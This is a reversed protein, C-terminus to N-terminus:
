NLIIKDCGSIAQNLLCIKADKTIGIEEFTFITALYYSVGSYIFKKYDKININLMDMLIYLPEEPYVIVTRNDKTGMKVTLKIKNPKCKILEINDGNKLKYEFIFKGPYIYKDNFKLRYDYDKNLKNYIDDIFSFKDVCTTEILNENIINIKITDEGVFKIEFNLNPVFGEMLQDDDIVKNSNIIKMKDIPISLNKFIVEKLNFISDLAKLEYEFNRNKINIHILLNNLNFLDLCSREYYKDYESAKINYDAFKKNDYVEVGNFFLKQCYEPIGYDKKIREKLNKITKQPDCKIYFRSDNNPEIDIYM